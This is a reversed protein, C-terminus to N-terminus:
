RHHENELIRYMQKIEHIGPLFILICYGRRVSEPRTYLFVLNVALKYMSQSIGPNAYDIRPKSLKELDELYSTHIEYERNSDLDITPADAWGGLRKRPIRFYQSFEETNITGSMLIVKTSNPNQILYKKIVILLFEMEEDREHVEDLIIHTFTTMHKAQVLKQLLVGTTCYLLRTDESVFRELGIQYGVISNVECNRELAVQTALSSAAIRRPQTVVINCYEKHRYADDLIFQPVQTSKGCGTEGKIILVHSSRIRSIIQDRHEHIPLRRNFPPKDFEYRLYLERMGELKIGSVNHSTGGGDQLRPDVKLAFSREMQRDQEERLSKFFGPGIKERKPLISIDRSETPVYANNASAIVTKKPLPKDLNMFDDIDFM